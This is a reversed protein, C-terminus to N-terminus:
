WCDQTETTTGLRYSKKRGLNDVSLIGCESDSAQAGVATATITYCTFDDCTVGSLINSVTLSYFGESSTAGGIDAIETTYQQNQAYWREQLAAAQLVASKGDARRTKQVSDSYSSVALSAIIGIIALVVLVEILTFGKKYMPHQM